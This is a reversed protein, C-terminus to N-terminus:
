RSHTVYLIPIRNAANWVRLDEIISSKLAADLGTLPEDLLLIRPRTVLSRALAIRQQEGGSIEGPKRDKLKGVRFAELIEAARKQRDPAPLQQLGYEVNQGVTLHPFLALSQFVYAINRKQPPLEVRNGSDFLIAGNVAIRGDDPQLFGALCDLLTSKGSGSPGFLITIGPSAEFSVDLTFTSGHAGRREKRIDAALSPLNVERDV